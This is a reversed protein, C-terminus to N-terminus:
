VIKKRWRNEECVKGTFRLPPVHSEWPFAPVPAFPNEVAHWNKDLGIKRGVGGGM